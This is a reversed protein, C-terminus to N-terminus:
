VSLLYSLWLVCTRSKQFLEVFQVSQKLWARSQRGSINFTCTNGDQQTVAIVAAAIAQVTTKGSRRPFLICVVQYISKIGYRERIWDM